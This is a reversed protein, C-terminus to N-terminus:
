ATRKLGRAEWTMCNIVLAEPPAVKEWLRQSAPYGVQTGLEVWWRM